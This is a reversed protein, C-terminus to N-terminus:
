PLSSVLRDTPDASEVRPVFYFGVFILTTNMDENYKNIFERDYEEAVTLFFRSSAVRSRGIWQSSVGSGAELIRDEGLTRAVTL